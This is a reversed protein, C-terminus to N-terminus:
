SFPFKSYVRKVVRFSILSTYNWVRRYQIVGDKIMDNSLVGTYFALEDPLQIVVDWFELSIFAAIWFSLSGWFRYRTKKLKKVINRFGVSVNKLIQHHALKVDSIAYSDCNTQKSRDDTGGSHTHSPTHSSVRPLNPNLRPHIVTFNVPSKILSYGSDSLGPDLLPIGWPPPPPM